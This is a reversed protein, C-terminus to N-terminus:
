QTQDGAREAVHKREGHRLNARNVWEHQAEYPRRQHLTVNSNAASVPIGQSAETAEQNTVIRAVIIGNMSYVSAEPGAPMEVAQSPSLAAGFWTHSSSRVFAVLSRTARRSRASSRSFLPPPIPEVTTLLRM